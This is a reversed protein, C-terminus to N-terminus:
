RWGNNTWQITAPGNYELHYCMGGTDMGNFDTTNFEFNLQFTQTKHAPGITFSGSNQPATTGRGMLITTREVALQLYFDSYEIPITAGDNYTVDITITVKTRGNNEVRNTETQTITLDTIPPTPTPKSTPITTPRTYEPPTNPSDPFPNNNQAVIILATLSFILSLIVGSCLLATSPKM